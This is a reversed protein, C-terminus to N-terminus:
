ELPKMGNRVREADEQALADKLYHLLTRADNSLAPKDYFTHSKSKSYHGEILNMFRRIKELIQDLTTAAIGPDPENKLATALDSHALVRNRLGRLPQALTEIESLIKDLSEALPDNRLERVRESLMALSANERGGTRSRDTLRAIALVISDFFTARVTVFFFSGTHKLIRANESSGDFLQRLMIWRVHLRVVEQWRSKFLERIEEPLSEM